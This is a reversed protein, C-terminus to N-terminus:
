QCSHTITKMMLCCLGLYTMSAHNKANQNKKKQQPPPKREKLYSLFHPLVLSYELVEVHKTQM